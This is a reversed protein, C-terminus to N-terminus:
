RLLPALNEGSSLCVWRIVQSNCLKGRSTSFLCIDTGTHAVPIKGRIRKPCYKRRGQSIKEYECVPWYEPSYQLFRRCIGLSRERHLEEERIIQGAFELWRPRGFGVKWGLSVVLTERTEKRLILSPGDCPEGWKRGMKWSDTNKM